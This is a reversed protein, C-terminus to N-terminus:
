HRAPTPERRGPANDASMAPAVVCANLSVIAVLLVTFLTTAIDVVARLM